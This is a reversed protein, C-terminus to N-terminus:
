ILIHGLADVKVGDGRDRVVSIMDNPMAPAVEVAAAEVVVEQTLEDAAGMVEPARRDEEPLTGDVFAQEVALAQNERALEHRREEIARFVTVRGAGRKENEVDHEADEIDDLVAIDTVGGIERVLDRADLRLMKELKM